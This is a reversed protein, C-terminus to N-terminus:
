SLALLTKDAGTCYRYQIVCAKGTHYPVSISLALLSKEQTIGIDANDYVKLPKILALATICTRITPPPNRHIPPLKWSPSGRYPIGPKQDLKSGLKFSLFQTLSSGPLPTVGTGDLKTWDGWCNGLEAPPSSTGTM